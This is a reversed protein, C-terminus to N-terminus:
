IKELNSCLVFIRVERDHSRTRGTDGMLCIMDSLTIINIFIITHYYCRTNISCKSHVLCRALHKAHM